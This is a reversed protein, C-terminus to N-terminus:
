YNLYKTYKLTYLICFNTYFEILKSSEDHLHFCIINNYNIYWKLVQVIVIFFLFKIVFFFSKKKNKIKTM